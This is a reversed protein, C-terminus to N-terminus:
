LLINSSCIIILWIWLSGRPHSSIVLRDSFSAPPPPAATLDRWDVAGPTLGETLRSIVFCVWFVFAASGSGLINCGHGWFKYFMSIISAWADFRYLNTLADKLERPAFIQNTFDLRFENLVNLAVLNWVLACNCYKRLLSFVFLAILLAHFLSQFYMFLSPTKFTDIPPACEASLSISQKLKIKGWGNRESEEVWVWPCKGKLMGMLVLMEAGPSSTARAGDLRRKDEIVVQNYATLRECSEEVAVGSVRRSNM